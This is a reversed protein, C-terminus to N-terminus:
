GANKTWSTNRFSTSTRTWSCRQHHTTSSVGSKNTTNDESEVTRTPQVSNSTTHGETTREKATDQNHATATTDRAINHRKPDQISNEGKWMQQQARNPVGMTQYKDEFTNATGDKFRFPKYDQLQQTPVPCQTRAPAFLRDEQVAQTSRRCITPAIM